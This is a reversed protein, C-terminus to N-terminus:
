TSRLWPQETAGTLSVPEFRFVRAIGLAQNLKSGLALITGLDTRALKGFARCAVETADRDRHISRPQGVLLHQREDLLFADPGDDGGFAPYVNAARRPAIITV